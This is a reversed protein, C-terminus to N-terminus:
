ILSYSMVRKGSPVKLWEKRIKMGDMRLEGIRASLNLCGYDVFAIMPTITEGRKLAAAILQKQTLTEKEM